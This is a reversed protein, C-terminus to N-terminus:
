PRDTLFQRSGPRPQARQGPSSPAGGASRFAQKLEEPARSAMFAGLMRAYVGQMQTLEAVIEKKRPDPIQTFAMWNDIVSRLSAVQQGVATLTRAAESFNNQVVSQDYRQRSMGLDSRAIKLRETGLYDTYVASIWQRADEVNPFVSLVVQEYDARSLTGTLMAADAQALRQRQEPGIPMRTQIQDALAQTHRLTATAQAAQREEHARARLAEVGGPLHELPVGFRTAFAEATQPTPGQGTQFVFQQMALLRPDVAPPVAITPVGLIRQQSARQSGADLEGPTATWGPTAELETVDSPVPLGEFTVPPRPTAFPGGLTEAEALRKASEAIDKRTASLLGAEAPSGARFASLSAALEQPIKRGIEAAVGGVGGVFEKAREEEARTRAEGAALREERGRGAILNAFAVQQSPSLNPDPSLGLEKLQKAMAEREAEDRRQQQAQQSLQALNVFAQGAQPRYLGAGLAAFPLVMGLLQDFGGGQQGEGGM